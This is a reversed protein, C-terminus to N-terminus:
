RPALTAMTMVNDQGPNPFTATETTTAPDTTLRYESLDGAGDDAGVTFGAGPSTIVGGTSCAAWVADNGHATVITADCDGQTATEAHADVAAHAFEDGIINASACSAGWTATATVPTTNPVTAAFSAAWLDVGAFFSGVPTFTWGPASLSVSVPSAVNGCDVHLIVLDDVALPTVQITTTTSTNNNLTQFSQRWAIPQVPGDPLSSGPADARTVAAFDIRGCAAAAGWAAVLWRKRV